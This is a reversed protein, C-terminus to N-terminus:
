TEGDRHQTGGDLGADFLSSIRHACNQNSTSRAENATVADKLEQGGTMLHAGCHSAETALGVNAGHQLLASGFNTRAM